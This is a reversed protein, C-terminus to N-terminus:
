PVEKKQGTPTHKWLSIGFCHVSITAYYIYSSTLVLFMVCIHPDARAFPAAITISPSFFSVFKSIPSRSSYVHSFVDIFFSSSSPFFVVCVYMCQCLPTYVIATTKMTYSIHRKDIAIDTHCANYTCANAMLTGRM